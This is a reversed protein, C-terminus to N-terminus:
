EALSTGLFTLKSGQMGESFSNDQCYSNFHFFIHDQIDCSQSNHLQYYLEGRPTWSM